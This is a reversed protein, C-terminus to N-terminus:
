NIVEYQGIANIIRRASDLEEESINQFEVIGKKVKIIKESLGADELEIKIMNECSSCHMGKISLTKNEM